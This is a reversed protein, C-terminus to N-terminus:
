ELAEFREGQREECFDQAPVEVGDVDVQGFDSLICLSAVDVHQMVQLDLGLGLGLSVTRDKCPLLRYFASKVRPLQPNNGHVSREEEEVTM